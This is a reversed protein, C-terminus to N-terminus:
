FVVLETHEGHCVTTRVCISRLEEDSKSFGVPKIAMVNHKPLHNIPFLGQPLDLLAPGVAGSGGLPHGDSLTASHSMNHLVSQTNPLAYATNHLTILIHKTNRLKYVTKPNLSLMMFVPIIILTSTQILIFLMFLIIYNYLIIHLEMSYILQIPLYPRVYPTITSIRRCALDIQIRKIKPCIVCTM